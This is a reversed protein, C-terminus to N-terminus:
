TGGGVGVIEPVKLGVESLLVNLAPAGHLKVELHDPFVTVSELLEQVLVRREDNNAAAWFADIDLDRLLVVVQEFRQELESVSHAELDEASSQERAAEIAAVLRDEEQKFGEVSIADGYYLQLLKRREATLTAQVDAGSRRRGRRTRGPGTRTGGAMQRRIAEQLREDKALLAMGLVAARSLGKTSRAPQSCGQGRHRCKYTVNGKGNQAIAMRRGCLGCVVRGTLLDRSPQVGKALGRHAAHWEDPTIIPEHVGPFWQGNHPVEGLYIRSKLIASITSYKLGIHEEIARYSLNTARLRFCEQVRAADANPVLSGNIMDYGTKPRNIHKGERVARENGMRVNESLQERFFQAFTGLINYFMRGSASSLDLNESVSHLAVGAAGFKDALIILDGLNRSLRDLRWVLVHSVHGAEVAGLLQQLGPRHMDKGSRGPDTVVTVDGLERLASYVRLKDAQGEISYGEEAQEDTSVRCYALTLM